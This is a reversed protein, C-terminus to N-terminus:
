DLGYGNWWRDTFGANIPNNHWPQNRHLWIERALDIYSRGSDGYWNKGQSNYDAIAWLALTKCGDWSEATKWGQSTLWIQMGDPVPEVQMYNSLPWSTAEASGTVVMMVLVAAIPMWIMKKQKM